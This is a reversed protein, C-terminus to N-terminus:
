GSSSVASSPSLHTLIGKFREEISIFVKSSINGKGTSIDEGKSDKGTSIDEGKSDKGTSIRVKLIRELLYIRVKILGKRYIDEGKSDKGTSIRM